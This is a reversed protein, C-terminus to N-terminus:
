LVEGVPEILDPRNNKVNGVAPSVEHGAMLDAQTVRLLKLIEEKDTIEPNLWFDLQQPEALIVPTKEHVRAVLENPHDSTVVAFHPGDPTECYVAALSMISRDKMYIAFPRKRGPKGSASVEEKRWEFFGTVPLVCRHFLVEEDHSKKTAITTANVNILYFSKGFIQKAYGWEQQEIVREGNKALVVPAKQKPGLNFNPKLGLKLPRRNLYRAALEDDTITSYARGCM